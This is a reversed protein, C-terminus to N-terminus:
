EVSPPKTQSGSNQSQCLSSLAPGGHDPRRAPARRQTTGRAARHYHPKKRPRPKAILGHYRVPDDYRVPDHDIVLRMPRQFRLGHHRFARRSFQYVLENLYGQLHRSSRATTREWCGANACSLWRIRAPRSEKAGVTRQHAHGSRLAPFYSALGDTVVTSDPLRHPM